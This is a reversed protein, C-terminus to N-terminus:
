AVVVAGYKATIEAATKTEKGWGCRNAEDHWCYCKKDCAWHLSIGEAAFAARAKLDNEVKGFWLWSGKQEIKIKLKKAIAIIKDIKKQVAPSINAMEAQGYMTGAQLKAAKKTKAPKYAKLSGGAALTPAPMKKGTDLAAALDVVGALALLELPDLKINKKAKKAKAPAKTNKKQKPETNLLFVYRAYNFGQPDILLWRRGPAVVALTHSFYLYKDDLKDVPDECESGGKYGHLWEPADQLMNNVFDDYQTATINVVKDVKLLEVGHTNEEIEKISCDKGLGTFGLVFSGAVPARGENKKADQYHKYYLSNEFAARREVKANKAAAIAAATVEEGFAQIYAAETIPRMMGLETFKCDIVDLVSGSFFEKENRKMDYAVAEFIASKVEATMEKKSTKKM